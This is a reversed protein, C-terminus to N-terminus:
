VPMAASISPIDEDETAAEEILNIVMKKSKAKSCDVGYAKAVKKLESMTMSEDYVPLEPVASPKEACVIPAENPIYEAVGKAVLNAEIEKGLEVNGDKASIPIVKHGDWYGYTGKIIKVM